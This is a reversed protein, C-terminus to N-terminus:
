KITDCDVCLAFYMESGGVEVTPGSENKKKTRTAVDIKRCRNCISKPSIIDDAEAMLYHVVGFINRKFDLKLGNVIVLKGHKLLQHIVYIIRESYFQVEDFAVISYELLKALSIDPRKSSIIEASIEEKNHTTIGSGRIDVEPKVWIFNDYVLSYKNILSRTTTTKESFMCSFIGILRGPPASQPLNASSDNKLPCGDPECTVVANSNCWDIKIDLKNICIDEPELEKKCYVCSYNDRGVIYKFDIILNNSFLTLFVMIFRGVVVYIM